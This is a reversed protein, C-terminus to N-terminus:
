PLIVGKSSHFTQQLLVGFCTITAYCCLELSSVLDNETRFGLGWVRLKVGLNNCTDSVVLVSRPSERVAGPNLFRLPECLRLM